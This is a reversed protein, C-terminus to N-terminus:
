RRNTIGCSGSSGGLPSDPYPDTEQSSLSSETDPAVSNTGQVAAGSDVSQEAIPRSSRAAPGRTGKAALVLLVALAVLAVAYRQGHISPPRSGKM